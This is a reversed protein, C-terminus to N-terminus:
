SIEYDESLPLPLAFDSEGRGGRRTGVGGLSATAEPDPNPGEVDAIMAEGWVNSEVNVASVCAKSIARKFSSRSAFLFARRNYKIRESM